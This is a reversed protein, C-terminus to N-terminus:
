IINLIIIFLNVWRNISLCWEISIIQVIIGIIIRIIIANGENFVKYKISSIHFGVNKVILAIPWWHYQDYSYGSKGSVSNSEYIVFVYSDNFRNRKNSTSLRTIIGNLIGIRIIVVDVSTIWEHVIGDNPILISEVGPRILWIINNAYRGPNNKPWHESIQPAFWLNIGM